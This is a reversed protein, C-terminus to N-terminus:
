LAAVYTIIFEDIYRQLRTVSIYNTVRIVWKGLLSWRNSGFTVWKRIKYMAAFMLFRAVYTRVMGNHRMCICPTALSFLQSYNYRSLEHSQKIVYKLISSQKMLINSQEILINSHEIISYILRKDSGSLYRNVRIGLHGPCFTVWKVWITQIRGPQLASDYLIALQIHILIHGTRYAQLFWGDPQM